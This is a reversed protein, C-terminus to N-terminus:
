TRDRVTWVGNDFFALQHQDFRALYLWQNDVLQKVMPHRNLVSEIAAEPADIVVTLRLPEHRWQQGDHLSQRSLGIRLDGGNGEFVGLRGGVVNHLTKNGSGYRHHDVTSAYYQMNIWNTVIMPATMIHALGSADQDQEYRYEHLFTRGDLRIGRTRERPAVIFAANNALGWEPRTQAWDNARRNIRNEISHLSQHTLGLQPAREMRAALSAADLQTQLTALTRQVQQDFVDTDYLSLGDTTTNHFGAVFYTTEPVQIGRLALGERVASQNLLRALARVNVEGTQGCCAGCDLGARHPNNASESGHGILLVIPAFGTTLGMGKLVNEALTLQQEPDALLTPRLQKASAASLGPAKVAHGHLPLARKILKGVYGLGLSEVLTFTSAPMTNFWSWGSERQLTTQRQEAIATDHEHDGASESVTFSPALLGPLQPRKIDTGLPTYRVPLGFFGAFGLTHIEEGQAELHRRIVESRVDICFAAQVKPVHKLMPTPQTFAQSLQRQYSIEHARQWILRRNITEPQYQRFHQQWRHQWHQWVSGSHRAQNDVLWEWSLRVALLDILTEDTQQSLQAQWKLYACWAAWGSVRYMVAQLYDQWQEPAIDLLALVQRIQERPSAAMTAARQPIYPAKMLLAVSHDHCLTERWSQYLGVGSHPHWDAQDQDFYAACFQAVQHTITDCWAPEKNLNRQSDMSDCLLPAPTLPYEEDQLAAVAAAPDWGDAVSLSNLAQTLDAAIIAGNEWRERYYALPMAMPSGAFQALHHAVESFPRDIWSWYPNVAIMRDLPWNPAISDCAAEIAHNLMTAPNIEDRSLATM